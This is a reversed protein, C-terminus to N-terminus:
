RARRWPVLARHLARALAGGLAGLVALGGIAAFMVPVNLDSAFARIVFGLGRQAAIFESVVAGVFALVVAVQFAAMIGDAAAPLRVDRFTRWPGAGFARYLDVLAAPAGRVGAVTNVFLPFFCLLAVTAVKSPLGVGLYVVILPALAVTPMSQTAIVLPYVALAVPRVEAVLAGLVIGAGAGILLGMAAAALTAAAHEWLTGEWWGQWLAGGVEGLPPLVYEPIGWLRIAGEWAAGLALLTLATAAATRLRDGAPSM